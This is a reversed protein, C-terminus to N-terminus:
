KAAAAAVSSITLHHEDYRNRRALLYALGAVCLLAAVTGPGFAVEGTFLGGLQYVVLSTVYAFGCM